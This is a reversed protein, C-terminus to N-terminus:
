KDPIPVLIKKGVILREAKLGDNARLILDTTVKKGTEKSYALAIALLTDGPAITHEMAEKPLGSMPRDGTNASARPSTTRGGGALRALDKIEKAILAADAKRKDDVEQIKRALERLDDNSAPTTTPRPQNQTQERLTQIEKLLAEMQRRQAVNAEELNEIKGTLQKVREELLAMDQASVSFGTAVLMWVTLIISIRKM